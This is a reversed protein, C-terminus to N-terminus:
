QLVKELEHVIQKVIKTYKGHITFGAANKHGGGGFVKAVTAVNVDGHSRLSVHHTNRGEQTLFISARVGRADSAYQKFKHREEFDFQYKKNNRLTLRTISITGGNRFHLNRLVQRFGAVLRKDYVRFNYYNITQIDVGINILEAAVIHTYATTSAYLFCGTDTSVSTYLATAMDPTVRVKNATFFEYLLEGCSARDPNTVVRDAKINIGLHHDFCLVKKCHARLETFISLRDESSTDIIVLLDFQKDTPLTTQIQDVGRLYYFQKPIVGDIFVEAKKGMDQFAMQMALCSGVCDGDPRIHGVIAATKATKILDFANGFETSKLKM